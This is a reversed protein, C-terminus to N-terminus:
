SCFFTEIGKALRLSRQPGVKIQHILSLGDEKMIKQRKLDMNVRPRQLPPDTASVQTQQTADRCSLNCMECEPTLGTNVYTCFQCIWQPLSWFSGHGFRHRASLPSSAVCVQRRTNACPSKLHSLDPAVPPRTALRPRECVECLVSSGQNM